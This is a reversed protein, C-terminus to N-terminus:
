LSGDYAVRLWSLLEVDVQDPDTLSVRHTMMAYGGGGLTLRSTAAVGPLKLGIDFRQPTSPQLTAFQSRTGFGVLTAKPLVKVRGFTRMEALLRDYTPRWHAKAPPFLRAVREDRTPETSGEALFHGTLATAHGHGFGHEEKLWAVLEKHSRSGHARMLAKWEEISRGYKAEISPFYSAPGYVRDTM